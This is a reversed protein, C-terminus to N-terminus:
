SKVTYSSSDLRQEDATRGARSEFISYPANTIGANQRAPTYARIDTANSFAYDVFHTAGCESCRSNHCDCRSPNPMPIDPLIISQQLAPQTLLAVVANAEADSLSRGRASHLLSPIAFRRFRHVDEDTVPRQRLESMVLKVLAARVVEKDASTDQFDFQSM